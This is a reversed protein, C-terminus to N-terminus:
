AFHKLRNSNLGNRWVGSDTMDICEALSAARWLEGSYDGYGARHAKWQENMRKADFYRFHRMREDFAREAIWERLEATVWKKQPVAYGVKDPRWVVSPPLRNKMADRLRPFAPQKPM